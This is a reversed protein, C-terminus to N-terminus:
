CTVPTTGRVACSPSPCSPVGVIVVHGTHPAGLSDHRGKQVRQECASGGAPAAPDPGAPGAGAGGAGGPGGRDGAGGPGGAGGPVDRGAEDTGGGGGAGRGGAGGGVGAAPHSLGYPEVGHGGTGGPGGARRGAPALAEFSELASM